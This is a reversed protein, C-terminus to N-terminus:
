GTPRLTVPPRPSVTLTVPSIVGSRGVDGLEVLVPLCALAVEQDQSALRALGPFNYSQQFFAATQTPTLSLHSALFDALSVLELSEASKHAGM